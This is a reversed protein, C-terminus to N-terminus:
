GIKSARGRSRRRLARGLPVILLIAAAATVFAFPRVPWAHRHRILALGTWERSRALRDADIVENRGAPDVVQVLRGTHGVPRVVVYHGRDGRDLYVIAPGDISAPDRGLDVGVLPVPSADRLEAPSYGGPTQTPLRGALDDIALGSGEFRLWAYLSLLGCDAGGSPNAPPIERARAILASAALILVALAARHTVSRM